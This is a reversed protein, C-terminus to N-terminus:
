QSKCDPCVTQPSPSFVHDRNTQTPSTAISIGSFPIPVDIWRLSFLPIYAVVVSLLFFILLRVKVVDRRAINTWVKKQAEELGRVRKWMSVDDVKKAKKLPPISEDLEYVTASVNTLAPSAPRSGVPTIDGAVSVSASHMGSGGASGIGSLGGVGLGLVEQTSPPLTDLKKRPGGKKRGKPTASGSEISQERQKGKGKGRGASILSKVAHPMAVVTSASDGTVSRELDEAAAEADRDKDKEKDKNAVRRRKRSPGMQSIPIDPDSSDDSAVSRAAVPRKRIQRGKGRPKGTTISFTTTTGGSPGLLSEELERAADEAGAHSSSPGADDTHMFDHHVMEHGDVSMTSPSQARVTALLEDDVPPPVVPPPPPPPPPPIRSIRGVYAHSLTM